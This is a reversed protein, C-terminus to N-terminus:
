LLSERCILLEGESTEVFHVQLAEVRRYITRLSVNAIRAAQSPTLMNVLAACGDCWASITREKRLEFRQSREFTIETTKTRKRTKM